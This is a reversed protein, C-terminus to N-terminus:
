DSCRAEIAQSHAEYLHQRIVSFLAHSVSLHFDEVIQMNESPIVVCLDCFRKMKGGRFGTLGINFTGTSHGVELARLVNESNGSGSIAFLFDGPTLLNLLQEAFVGAYSDDNAWATLLPVNDTLALIRFRKQSRGNVITGKALDCAFHSALAASGGNGFVFVRRDEKYARLLETAVNEITLYPLQGVLDQYLQFYQWPSRIKPRSTQSSSQLCPKM